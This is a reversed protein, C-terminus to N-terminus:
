EELYLYAWLQGGHWAGRKHSVMDQRVKVMVASGLSPKMRGVDFVKWTSHIEDDDDDDDYGFPVMWWSLDGNLARQSPSWRVSPNTISWYTGQSKNEESVHWLQDFLSSTLMLLAVSYSRHFFSWMKHIKSCEVCNISAAQYRPHM